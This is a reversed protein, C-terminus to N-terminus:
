GLGDQIERLREVLDSTESFYFGRDYQMDRLDAMVNDFEHCTFTLELAIEEPVKQKVEM